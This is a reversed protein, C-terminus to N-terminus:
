WNYNNLATYHTDWWGNQFDTDEQTGAEYPSPTYEDTKYSSVGEYYEKSTKM